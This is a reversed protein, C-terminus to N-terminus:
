NPENDRDVPRITINAYRIVDGNVIHLERDIIKPESEFGTWSSSIFSYEDVM